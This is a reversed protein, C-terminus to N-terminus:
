ASRTDGSAPKRAELIATRSTLMKWGNLAALARSNERLLQPRKRRLRFTHWLRSVVILPGLLVTWAAASRKTRDGHLTPEELGVRLADYVLFYPNIPHIHGSLFRIDQDHIPLPDFLSPFGWLMSRVRSNLNSVNPTTIVVKGGPKAIRALERMFHFQDEVHEIVEISVVADFTDDEYPLPAGPEAAKCELEEYEFSAPFPDCPFVHQRVDLGKEHRLAEGLVHSFHGRGAGVDAVVSGPKMVAVMDETM